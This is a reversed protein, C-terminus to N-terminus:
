PVNAAGPTPTSSFVWDSDADDTDRGNPVRALSGQSTNSDVATAATGEVFDLTGSVGSVQAAVLAGGYSLADVLRSTTKDLIGVGNPGGNRMNNSTAPFVFRGAAAGADAGPMTPSSIVAYKGPALSGSLDVRLYEANTTGSVFVVALNGLDVTASTPNYIEVFEATDVGVQDYDVENIVISKAPSSSADGGPSRGGDYRGVIVEPEPDGSGPEVVGAEPKSSADPAVPQEESSACALLAVPLLVVACRM